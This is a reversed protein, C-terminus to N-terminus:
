ICRAITTRNSQCTQSTSKTNKQQEFRLIASDMHLPLFRRFLSPHLMFHLHDVVKM